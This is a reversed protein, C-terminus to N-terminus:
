NKPFLKWKDVGTWNLWEHIVLYDTSTRRFANMNNGINSWYDHKSRWECTCAALLRFSARRRGQIKRREARLRTSGNIRNSTLPTVEATKVHTLSVQDETDLWSVLLVLAILSESVLISFRTLHILSRHSQSWPIIQYFSIAISNPRIQIQKSSVHICSLRHSDCQYM